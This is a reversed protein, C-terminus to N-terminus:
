DEKEKISYLVGDRWDQGAKYKNYAEYFTVPFGFGYRVSRFFSKKVVVDDPRDRNTCVLNTSFIFLTTNCAISFYLKLM